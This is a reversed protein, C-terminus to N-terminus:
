AETKRPKKSRLDTNGIGICLLLNCGTCAANFAFINHLGGMYADIILGEQAPTFGLSSISYASSTLGAITSSSVFPLHSLKTRLTNSLIAGSIIIGFGGGITRMFNRLGTLVARDESRSNALLGVLTPQLTMGTGAGDVLLIVVLKWIPTSRTFTARLSLGVLWFVYGVIIPPMYRGVRAMFQGSLISFISTMVILPLIMAGSELSSFGHVSQFYILPHQKRFFFNCYFTLGSLFSQAYLYACHPATFLHLPTIPIAPVKWEYLIFAVALVCGITLMAILAPSSWSYTIGGGSLPILILLVAALNLAVGGYDIKKAKALYNGSEYRLPLFFLLAVAGPVALMPIM